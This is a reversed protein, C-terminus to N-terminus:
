RKELKFFRRLSRKFKHVKVINEIEKMCEEDAVLQKEVFPEASRELEFKGMEIFQHIDYIEEENLGESKLWEDFFSKDFFNGGANRWSEIYRTYHIGNSTLKNELM